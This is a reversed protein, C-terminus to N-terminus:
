DISNAVAIGLEDSMRGSLAYLRDSTAWILETRQISGDDELSHILTGTGTRLAVERITAAEDKPIALLVGPNSSMRKALEKAPHPSVGLIRLGIEALQRLQVNPAASVFVPQAQMLTLEHWEAIASRSVFVIIRANMWDAPINLDTAGVRDLGRKLADVDLDIQATLSGLTSLKPTGALVTTLPLRVPFGVNRSAEAVDSASQPQGPSTVIHASLAAKIDDPVQDVDVRIVEVRSLMVFQLMRQAVARAPPILSVAVVLLAAAAAAWQWRVRKTIRSACFGDYAINADATWQAPPDLLALRNSVWPDRDEM